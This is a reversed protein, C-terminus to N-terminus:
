TILLVQQVHLWDSRLHKQVGVLPFDGILSTKEKLLKLHINSDWLRRAL